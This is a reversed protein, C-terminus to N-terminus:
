PTAGAMMLKTMCETYKTMIDASKRALDPDPREDYDTGANRAMETGWTTLEENVKDACAKDKCACMMQQFGEMKAVAQDASSGGVSLDRPVKVVYWRGKAQVMDLKAKHEKANGDRTVRVRVEVEHFMLDTRAVCASSITGGKAIFTANRDRDHRRGYRRMENRITVVEVKSGKAGTAAKTFDNRLVTELQKADAGFGDDDRDQKCAFAYEYLGKPDALAMLREVDGNALAALADKVVDNRSQEAVLSTSNALVPQKAPTQNSGGCAAVAVFGLWAFRGM